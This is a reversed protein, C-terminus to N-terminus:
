DVDIQWVAICAVFLNFTFLSTTLLFGLAISDFHDRGSQVRYTWFLVGGVIPLTSALLLLWFSVTGLRDTRIITGATTGRTLFFSRVRSKLLFLLFLLGFIFLLGSSTGVSSVRYMTMRHANGLQQPCDRPVSICSTNAWVGRGIDTEVGCASVAWPALQPHMLNLVLAVVKSMMTVVGLMQTFLYGRLLIQKRRSETGDRAYRVIVHYLAFLALFLCLSISLEESEMVGGLQLPITRSFTPVDWKCLQVAKDSSVHELVVNQTIGLVIITVIWGIVSNRLSQRLADTSWHRRDTDYCLDLCLGTGGGDGRPGRLPTDEDQTDGTSEEAVAWRRSRRPPMASPPSSWQDM